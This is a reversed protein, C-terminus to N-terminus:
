VIQIFATRTITYGISNTVVLTYTTNVEPYFDQATNSLVSIGNLTATGGTFYVQVTVPDGIFIVNGGYIGTATISGTPMPAVNITVSAQATVGVGNTILLTYTTTTTPSVSISQGSTINQGGITSAGNITKTTANTFIPTITTSNGSTINANTTTISATPQELAGIRAALNNLQTQINGSVDFLFALQAASVTVDNTLINAGSPITITGSTSVTINTTIINNIFGNNWRTGTIGLSGDGNSTPTINTFSWTGSSNIKDASITYDMIKSGPINGRLKSSDIDATDSINANVITLAAIKSGADGSGSFVNGGTIASRQIKIGTITYDTIKDGTITTPQLRTGNITSEALQTGMINAAGALQTGMINAAGALQTGMINAAHYLQTGMINAAAALQTGTIGASSSIQSTTILNTLNLTNIYANRWYKSSSGLDISTPNRPVLNTTIDLGSFDSTGGGGSTLPWTAGNIRTIGSLDNIFAREWMNSSTGLSTSIDSIRRPIIQRANCIDRVNSIDGSVDINRVFLNNWRSGILGLDSNTTSNLPV